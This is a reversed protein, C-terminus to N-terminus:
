QITDAKVRQETKKKGRETMGGSRWEKGVRREESRRRSGQTEPLRILGQQQLLGSQAARMDYKGIRIIEPADATVSAFRNPESGAATRFGIGDKRGVARLDQEATFVIAIHINKDNRRFAANRFTQCVM